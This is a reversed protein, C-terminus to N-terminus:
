PHALDRWEREPTGLGKHEEGPVETMPVPEGREWAEAAPGADAFLGPREPLNGHGLLDGVIAERVFPSLRTGAHDALAQLDNRMQRGIWLKFDVTNKGLQPVLYVWRGTTRDVRKRSFRRADAAQESRLQWARLALRGYLYRILLDRLWASQSIGDYDALWKVTGAVIEPLWVKIATPDDLVQSSIDPVLGLLHQQHLRRDAGPGPAERGAANKDLFWWM